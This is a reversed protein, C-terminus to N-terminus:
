ASSAMGVLSENWNCDAQRHGKEGCSWCKTQVKGVNEKAKKVADKASGRGSSSWTKKGESKGKGGKGSGRGRGRGKDNGRSSNKGGGGKGGKQHKTYFSKHWKLDDEDKKKKDAKAVAVTVNQNNENAEALDLKTQYAAIADTTDKYTARTQTGLM